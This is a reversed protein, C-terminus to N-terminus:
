EEEEEMVESSAFFECQDAPLHQVDEWNHCQWQLLAGDGPSFGVHKSSLHGALAAIEPNHGVLTVCDISPDLGAIELLWHTVSSAYLESRREIKGPVSEALFEATQLTRVADSCIILQNNAVHESARRGQRKAQFVGKQTLSRSHDDSGTGKQSQGHRFILIQKM